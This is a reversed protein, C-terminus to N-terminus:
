CCYVITSGEDLARVNSDQYALREYPKTMVPSIADRPAELTKTLNM